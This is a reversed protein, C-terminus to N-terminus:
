ARREIDQRGVVDRGTIGRDVLARARKVRDEVERLVGRQLICEVNRPRLVHGGDDFLEGLGPLGEGINTDEPVEQLVLIHRSPRVHGDIWLGLPIGQREREHAVADRDHVVALLLPEM